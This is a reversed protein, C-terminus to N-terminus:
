DFVRKLYSTGIISLIAVVVAAFFGIMGVYQFGLTIGGNAVLYCNGCFVVVLLSLGFIMEKNNVIESPNGSM